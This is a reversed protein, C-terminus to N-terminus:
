VPDAQRAHDRAHDRAHRRRVLLVVAALGTVLVGYEALLVIRVGDSADWATLDFVSVDDGLPTLVVVGPV